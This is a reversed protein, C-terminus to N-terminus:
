HRRLVFEKILLYVDKLDIRGDLNLDAWINWRPHGPCSGFAVYLLNLDAFDVKGDNNVDGFPLIEKISHRGRIIVYHAGGEVEFFIYTYNNNVFVTYYHEVDDVTVSWNELSSCWLLNKSILVGFFLRQKGGSFLNFSIFKELPNFEFDSVSANTIVNVYYSKGLFRGANFYLIPLKFPYFDVNNTAIVYKEDVIGDSGPINQGEGLFDDPSTINGWFNGGSPYCMNWRNRSLDNIRVHVLNGYFSNHCFLNGNSCRIQVGVNNNVITNCEINNDECSVVLIGINNSEVKNRSITNNYVGSLYIGYSNNIIENEEVFNESSTLGLLVSASIVIGVSNDEFVNNLIRSNYSSDIVVGAWASQSVCSNTLSINESALIRVGRETNTIKAGKIDCFKSYAILIGESNSSLCVNEVKVFSCNIVGVYGADSPITCRSRNVIYYVKKGNIINSCDIDHMFHNLTLGWVKLNFRNNLIINNRLTISQSDYLQIGYLFGSVTNNELHAGNCRVNIGSYQFGSGIIYFGSLNVNNAIIKVADGNPGQKIVAGEGIIALSKDIILNEEYIGRRVIICDGLSAKEVAERISHCQDPVVIVDCKALNDVVVISHCYPFIFLFYILLTYILEKM